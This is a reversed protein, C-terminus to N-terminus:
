LRALAAGRATCTGSQERLRPARRQGVATVTRVAGGGGWACGSPEWAPPAGGLEAAGRAPAHGGEPAAAGGLWAPLRPASRVPGGGMARQEGGGGPGASVAGRPGAGYGPRRRRWGGGAGWCPAARRGPGAGIAAWHSAATAEGVPRPAGARQDAGLAGTSGGGIPVASPAGGAAPWHPPLFPVRANVGDQGPGVTRHVAPVARTRLHPHAHTCVLPRAYRMCRQARVSRTCCPQLQRPCGRVWGGWLGLHPTARPGLGRGLSWVWGGALCFSTPITTAKCKPHLREQALAAGSPQHLATCGVSHM